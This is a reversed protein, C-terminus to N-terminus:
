PELAEEASRQNREVRRAYWAAHIKQWANDRSRAEGRRARDGPFDDDEAKHLAIAASLAEFQRDTLEVTIVRKVM